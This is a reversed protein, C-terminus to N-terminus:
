EKPIFILLLAVAYLLSLRLGRKSVERSMSVPFLPGSFEYTSYDHLADALNHQLETIDDLTLSLLLSHIDQDSLVTLPM